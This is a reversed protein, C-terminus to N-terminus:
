RRLTAAATPASAGPETTLAEVQARQGGTGLSHPRLAGAFVTLFALVLLVAASGLFYWPSEDIRKLGLWGRKIVM